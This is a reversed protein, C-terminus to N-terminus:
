KNEKEANDKAKIVFNIAEELEPHHMLTNPFTYLEEGAKILFSILLDISYLEEDDDYREIEEELLPTEIEQGLFTSM